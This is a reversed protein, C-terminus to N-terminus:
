ASLREITTRGIREMVKTDLSGGGLSAHTLLVMNHGVHVVVVDMAVPVLETEMRMRVALTEEGLNPFSLSEARVKSKSGDEDVSTFQKCATLATAMEGLVDDALEAEYTGIQVSLFPGWEDAKFARDVQSTADDVGSIRSFMDDCRAPTITGSDDEDNESEPDRTWGRPLDRLTPLAAEIEAATLLRGAEDFSHDAADPSSDGDKEGNNDDNEAFPADNGDGITLADDARDDSCASLSLAAAALAAAAALRTIKV